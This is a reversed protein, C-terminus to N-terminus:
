TGDSVKCYVTNGCKTCTCRINAPIEANCVGEALQGCTPCLAYVKVLGDRMQQPSVGSLARVLKAVAEFQRALKDLLANRRGACLADRRAMEERVIARVEERCLPADTAGM